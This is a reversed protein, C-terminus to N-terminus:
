FDFFELKYNLIPLMHVEFLNNKIKITKVNGYFSSM